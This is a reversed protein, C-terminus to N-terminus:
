FDLGELLQRATDDLHREELYETLHDLLACRDETSLQTFVEDYARILSKRGAAQTITRKRKM